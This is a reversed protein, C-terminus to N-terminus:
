QGITNTLGPGVGQAMDFKYKAVIYDAISSNLQVKAKEHEIQATELELETIMKLSYKLKAIEYSIQKHLIDRKNIEITDLMILLNNYGTRIEYEIDTTKNELNLKAEQLNLDAEKYDVEISDKGKDKPNYYKSVADFEIQKLKVEENLKFVDIRNKLAKEIAKGLDVKNLNTYKLDNNSTKVEDDFNNKLLKNFDMLAKKRALKADELKALANDRTYEAITYENKSILGQEYKAKTNNFNKLEIQYSKESLELDMNKKVLEYYLNYTNVKVTAEDLDITKNNTNIASLKQAPTLYKTKMNTILQRYSPALPYIDLYISELYDISVFDAEEVSDAYEKQLIDINCKDMTIQTDVKVAQRIASNVTYVKSQAAGAYVTYQFLVSFIVIISLFKKM